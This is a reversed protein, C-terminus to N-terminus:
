CGADFDGLFSLVDFIDITWDLNWDALLDGADLLGLFSLVDFIDLVTDGNVDAACEAIPLTVYDEPGHLEGGTDDALRIITTFADTAVWTTQDTWVGGNEAEDSREDASTNDEGNISWQIHDAITAGDGFSVPPFYIQIAYAGNDFPTAFFGPIDTVNIADIGVGDNNFHITVSTGPEVIRSPLSGTYRRVENEDHSCFRHGALDIDASGFNHLEITGAEFDITRMQLDRPGALSSASALSLAFLAITRTM